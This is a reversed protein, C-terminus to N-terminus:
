APESSPPAKHALIPLTLSFTTGEQERSHVLVLQGGLEEVANKCFSLGFGHGEHKDSFGFQFLFPQKEAPIGKGSDSITIKAMDQEDELTIALRKIATTEMSEVANKILNILIQTLRSRSGEVMPTGAKDLQLQVAHKKLMEGCMSIANDLIQDLHIPEHFAHAKAHDQQHRITQTMLKIIHRGREIEEAALRQEDRLVESLTSLLKPLKRGKEHNVLFDALNDQHKALLRNIKPLTDIKSTENLQKLKSNATLLSNLFNGMNHLVSTSIEAMHRYDQESQRLAQTIKRREISQSIARELLYGNLAFKPLLDDAGLKIVARDLSVQRHRGLMIVPLGADQRRLHELITFGQARDLTYDLLCADFSERELHERASPWDVAWNLSFPHSLRLLCKKILFFEDHDPDILLIRLRQVM